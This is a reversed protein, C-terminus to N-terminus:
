SLYLFHSSRVSCTGYSNFSEGDIAGLDGLRGYIGKIQNTEKARLIEKLVSGQSRESERVSVLEAVKQRAAQEQPILSEQEKICEQGAM